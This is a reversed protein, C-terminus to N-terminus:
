GTTWFTIQSSVDKDESTLPRFTGDQSLKNCDASGWKPCDTQVMAQAISLM